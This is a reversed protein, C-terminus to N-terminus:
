FVGASPRIPAAGSITFVYEPLRAGLYRIDEDQFLLTPRPPITVAARQVNKRTRSSVFRGGRQKAAYNAGYQLTPAKAPPQGGGGSVLVVDTGNESFATSSDYYKGTDILISRHGPHMAVPAFAVPRGGAIFNQNISGKMHFAFDTLVPQISAARAAAVGLASACEMPTM